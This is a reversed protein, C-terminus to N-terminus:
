LKRYYEVCINTQNGRQRLRRVETELKCQKIRGTAALRRLNSCINEATSAYPVRRKISGVTRWQDDLFDIVVHDPVRNNKGM